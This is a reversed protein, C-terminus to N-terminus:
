TWFFRIGIQCSIKSGLYSIFGSMPTSMVSVLQNEGQYIVTKISHLTFDFKLSTYVTPSSPDDGVKEGQGVAKKEGTVESPPFLRVDYYSTLM